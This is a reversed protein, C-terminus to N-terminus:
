TINHANFKSKIVDMGVWRTIAEELTLTSKAEANTITKQDFDLKCDAELDNVATVTARQFGDTGAFIESLQKELSAKDTTTQLGLKCDVTDYSKGSIKDMFGKFSM